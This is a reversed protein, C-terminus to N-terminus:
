LATHPQITQTIRQQQERYASVIRDANRFSMAIIAGSTVMLLFALCFILRQLKKTRERMDQLMDRWLVPEPSSNLAQIIAERKAKRHKM